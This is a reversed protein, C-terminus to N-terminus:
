KSVAIEYLKIYNGYLLKWDYKLALLKAIEKQFLLEKKNFKTFEFMYNSLEEIAKNDENERDIVKVVFNREGCNSLISKGFGSLNSTVTPVGYSISEVPTYGWPEYKSVFVSLDFGSIVDYYDKGLFNDNENVYIPVFICKVRDSDKNDIGNELLLEIVENGKPIKFPTLSTKNDFKQSGVNEFKNLILFIFNVINRDSKTEILKTNLKNLAKVFIDIGKNRIEYRGSTYFLQTEDVNINGFYKQVYENLMERNKRFSVIVDEVEEIGTNDFGNCTIVDASKSYFKTTETNTIESVTSFADSFNALAKECQQKTQVGIEYAFKDADIKDLDRYIENGHGSLARGLMTAHSTFITKVKNNKNIKNYFIAGGSMWEHCHLLVNQECKKSIKSVVIGCVWSWLMVEDFDYWSSNISDIKYSEWLLKKMENTHEGYGLHEVLIVKPKSEILWTGYHIKIGIENLEKEILNWKKPIKEEIFVEKSNELYPGVLFYNKFNEKAEKSKSTIVTHIGGVMNCVEWSVEFLYNNKLDM